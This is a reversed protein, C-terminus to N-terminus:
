RKSDSSYWLYNDYSKGQDLEYLTLQVYVNISEGVDIYKTGAASATASNLWLLCSMILIGFLYKVKPMSPSKSIEM